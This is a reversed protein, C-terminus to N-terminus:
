ELIVADGEDLGSLIEVYKDATMGTEVYVISKLGYQDAQYVATKGDVTILAKTPIYLTDDRHELMLQFTGRDGGELEVAPDILRFYLTGKEGEAVEETELGIDEPATVVASYEEKSVKISVTDGPKLLAYNETDASFVNLSTDALRLFRENEVSVDGVEASRIYTITGDFDAILQRKGLEARYEELYLKEVTAEEELERLGMELDKRLSEVSQASEREEKSLTSLYLKQQDLQQEMNERTQRLRVELKKVSLESQEVLAPYDGLDLEAMVTGAKVADGKKVYIERYVVGGVGFAYIQTRVPMYTCTVSETRSLEGRLVYAYKYEVPTIEKIVPATQYIEEEPLLSCASLSMALALALLMTLRKM